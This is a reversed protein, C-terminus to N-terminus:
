EDDGDTREWHDTVEDPLNFLSGSVEGSHELETKETKQYDFSTSLLFRAHQGDIEVGDPGKNHEDAILPGKILTKEGRHRARLFASRFDDHADLYRQLSAEGVGAARACGAKSFGDRAASLITEHDSEDIAFDRGHDVGTAADNHADIWCRDPDGEDTTPHQCPTGAATEAGCTEDPM